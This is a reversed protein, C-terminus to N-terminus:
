PQQYYGDLTKRLANRARHLRVRLNTETIGLIAAVEAMPLEELDRLQIALRYDEPLKEIAKKLLRHLEKQEYQRHPSWLSFTDLSQGEPAYHPQLADLDAETMTEVRKKKRLSARALNIAIACVWTSLKADGRFSDLKTLAQLFTEQVLSKAEDEDQVLRFICRYIKPSEARVFIAMAREDRM